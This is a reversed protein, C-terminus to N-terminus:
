YIPENWGERIEDETLDYEEMAQRESRTLRRPKDGDTYEDVQSELYRDIASSSFCGGM